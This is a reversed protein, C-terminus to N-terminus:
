SPAQEGADAASHSAAEAQQLAAAKQQRAQAEAAHKACARQVGGPVQM